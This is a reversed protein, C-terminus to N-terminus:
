IWYDLESAQSNVTVGKLAYPESVKKFPKAYPKTTAELRALPVGSSEASLLLWFFVCSNLAHRCFYIGHVDVRYVVM